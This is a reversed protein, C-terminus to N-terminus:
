TIQCSPSLRIGADSERSLPTDLTISILYGSNTILLGQHPAIKGSFGRLFERDTANPNSQMWQLLVEPDIGKARLRVDIQERTNGYPATPLKDIARNLRNKISIVSM